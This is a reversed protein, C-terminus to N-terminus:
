KFVEPYSGYILKQVPSEPILPPSDHFHSFAKSSIQKRLACCFGQHQGAKIPGRLSLKMQICVHTLFLSSTETIPGLSGSFAPNKHKTKKYLSFPSVVRNLVEMLGRQCSSPESVAGGVGSGVWDLSKSPSSCFPCPDIM